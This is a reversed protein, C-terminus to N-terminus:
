GRSHADVMPSNGLSAGLPDRHHKTSWPERSVGATVVACVCESACVCVCKM